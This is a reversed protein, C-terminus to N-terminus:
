QQSRPDSRVRPTRDDPLVRVLGEQASSAVLVGQRTFFQGRAFGRAGSANPSDFSYLLWEDVRVDRHFWLAHDLSAMLVNGRGFLLGHPLTSTGLLEYDSVYALLNQHLSADDPLTDMARIWVHKVPPLHEPEEFNMPRVPRFEFPRKHTLYRRMKEPIRALVEDSVETADQLGEPGPVDPMQAQHELGEEPTQFSAALNFIPRGHQIAVVRRVSFSGGDRARDVEYIIPANMDGRRLFYAHLSHARRNEVTFHAASLAQGLVQGGFVQASGIDRSQGRYINDEIRELELLTILDQLVANM